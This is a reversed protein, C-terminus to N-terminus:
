VTVGIVGIFLLSEDIIYNVAAGLESTLNLTLAETVVNKRAAANSIIILGNTHIVIYLLSSRLRSDAGPTISLGILWHSTWFECSWRGVIEEHELVILTLGLATAGRKTAAAAADTRGGSLAL